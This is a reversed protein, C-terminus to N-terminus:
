DNTKFVSGLFGRMFGIMEEYYGYREANDIPADYEDLLVIIRKQYYAYLCETLFLLASELLAETANGSLISFFIFRQQEDLKESEYLFRNQRFISSILFAIREISKEYTDLEVNKAHAIYGPIESKKWM